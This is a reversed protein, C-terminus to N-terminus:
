VQELETEGGAWWVIALGEPLNADVQGLARAFRSAFLPGASSLKGVSASNVLRGRIARGRPRGPGNGAWVQGVLTPGCAQTWGGKPRPRFGDLLGIDGLDEALFRLLQPKRFNRLCADMGLRTMEADFGSVVPLLREMDRRMP